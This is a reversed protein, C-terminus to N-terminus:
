EFFTRREFKSMTAWVRRERVPQTPSRDVPLITPRLASLFMPRSGYRTM